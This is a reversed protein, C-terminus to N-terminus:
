SGFGLLERMELQLSKRARDAAANAEDQLFIVIRFVAGPDSRPYLATVDVWSIVRGDEVAQLQVEAASELSIPSQLGEPSRATYGQVRYVIM